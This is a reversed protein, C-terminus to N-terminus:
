DEFSFREKKLSQNLAQLNKTMAPVDEKLAEKIVGLYHKRLTPSKYIRNILAGTEMAAYAPLAVGVAKPATFLGYASGLLSLKPNEKLTKAIFDRVKNSNEIAGHVEEAQSFAKYFEPNQRGYDKIEGSVVSRFSDINKKLQKKVDKNAELPAAIENIKRKYARLEDVPIKGGAISDQLEKVKTMVPTTSPASGGKALHKELADLKKQLNVTSVAADKPLLADAKNYLEGRLARASPRGTMELLFMTGLKGYTQAKEEGGAVEVGEKALNAGLSVFFPKAAKFIKTIVGGKTPMKRGFLLSATDSVVEDAFEEGGSKPDTYGSTWSSMAKKLEQSTPLKELATQLGKQVFTPERKLSKPTKERVFKALQVVDGPFGAVTEGVRSASRTIYRGAAQLMSEPKPEDFVFRSQQSQEQQEPEDFVFRFQNTM